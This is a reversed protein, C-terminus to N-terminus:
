SKVTTRPIRPIRHVYPNVAARSRKRAVMPGNSGLAKAGAKRVYPLM